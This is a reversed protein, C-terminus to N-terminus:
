SYKIISCYYLSCCYSSILIIICYYPISMRDWGSGLGLGLSLFLLFSKFCSFRSRKVPFFDHSNSFKEIEAPGGDLERGWWGWGGSLPCCRDVGPSAGLLLEYREQTM